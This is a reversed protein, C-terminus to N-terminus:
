SAADDILADMVTEFPVSSCCGYLAHRTLRARVTRPSSLGCLFRAKQRPEKLAVPHELSLERLGRIASDGIRSPLNSKPSPTEEGLCVGCHGCPETMPQGFHNSLAASLCSESTALSFLDNLRSLEGLERDLAYDSLDNTTEEPDSISATRKYGHVLGKAKLEIWGQESFYELMRVIRSRECRLRDAAHILQLENWVRKKVALSIVSSAFARRESDLNSLIESSHVRYKFQYTEYRPATSTLLGTLELHTLLTRLVTERIDTEFSLAYHSVFFEQPQGALFQVLEGIATRSPTDGYAFNDLVVRDEPAFLTECVAPNADRGARGIEQAYNEISKSCNWHYIARINPKDIGMGFAITAVVIVEDNQLFWDQIRSRQDADLGAHYARADLGAECLKEAVWEATRQLSVYILVSGETDDGLRDLLLSLRDDPVCHTFRLTLNSRYFATQIADESAISFERRIDDLVAPTATATLALVREVQIEEAISALKLYDPRFNHGWQSICHAEDIAFLSVPVSAVFERFRENFFVSRPLTCSRSREVESLPKPTAAKM